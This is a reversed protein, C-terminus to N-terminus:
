PSNQSAGGHPYVCVCRLPQPEVSFLVVLWTNNPSVPVLVILKKRIRAYVRRKM